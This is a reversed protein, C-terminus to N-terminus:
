YLFLIDVDEKRFTHGAELGKEPTDILGINVVEVDLGTLKESLHQVYGSLKEELGDFQNWYAELGVGFLGFRVKRYEM